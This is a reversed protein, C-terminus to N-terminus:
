KILEGVTLLKFYISYALKFSRSINRKGNRHQTVESSFITVDSISKAWRIFDRNDKKNLKFLNNLESSTM